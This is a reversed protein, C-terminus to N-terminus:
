SSCSGASDDGDDSTGHLTVPMSGLLGLPVVVAIAIYITALAQLVIMPLLLLADRLRAAPRAAVLIIFPMYFLIGYTPASVVWNWLVWRTMVFTWGALAGALHSRTWRLVVIHLAWATLVVGLLFTLNVALTPNGSALFIPAFVPLAGFGAEGTFLARQAPYYINAQALAWPATVLRHSQYALVWAMQLLDFECGLWTDALHTTLHAALPWTVWTVLAAHLALAVLAGTSVGLARAAAQVDIWRRARLADV